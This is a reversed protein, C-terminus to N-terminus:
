PESNDRAPHIPAQDLVLPTTSAPQPLTATSERFLQRSSHSASSNTRKTMFTLDVELRVALQLDTTTTAQAKRHM